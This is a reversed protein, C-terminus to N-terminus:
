NNALLLQCGVNGRENKRVKKLLADQHPAKLLLPIIDSAGSASSNRDSSRLQVSPLMGSLAREACFKWHKERSECNKKRRGAPGDSGAHSHRGSIM